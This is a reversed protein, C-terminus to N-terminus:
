DGICDGTFALSVITSCKSVMNGKAHVMICLKRYLLQDNAETVFRTGLSWNEMMVVIGIEGFDGVKRRAAM